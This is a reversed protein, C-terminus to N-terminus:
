QEPTANPLSPYTVLGLNYDDEEGGGEDDGGLEVPENPKGRRRIVREQGQIYGNDRTFVVTSTVHWAEDRDEPVGAEQNVPQSISNDQIWDKCQTTGFREDRYYLEVLYHGLLAEDSKLLSAAISGSRMEQIFWKSFRDDRKWNTSIHHVEYRQVRCSLQLQVSLGQKEM